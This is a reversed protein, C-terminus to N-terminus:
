TFRRGLGEQYQACLDRSVVAGRPSIRSRGCRRASSLSQAHCPAGKFAYECVGDRRVQKVDVVAQAARVSLRGYPLWMRPYM